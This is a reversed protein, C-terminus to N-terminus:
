FDFEKYDEIEQFTIGTLEADEIINKLGEEVLILSQIESIRALKRDKLKSEKVGLRNVETPMKSTPLVEYESNDWDFCAVNELINLFFYDEYVLPSNLCSLKIPHFELYEKFEELVLKFKGSIIPFSHIGSIYDMRKERNNLFYLVGAESPPEISKGDSYNWDYSKPVQYKTIWINNEELKRNLLKFQPMNNDPNTFSLKGM